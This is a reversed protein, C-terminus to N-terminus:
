SPGLDGIVQALNTPVGAVIKVKGDKGRYVSYPTGGFGYKIMLQRNAELKAAADPAITKPLTSYDVKEVAKWAAAMDPASLVQQAIQVSDPGLIGVPILRLQVAAMTQPSANLDQWYGQCYHCRPDVFIYLVPATKAGITIYTSAGADAWLREGASGPTEGPQTGPPVSVAEAAPKGATTNPLVLGKQKAAELQGATVLNGEPGYLLGVVSAQGDLTTYVVEVATDKTILWGDLGYLRGIYNVDAGAQKFQKLTSISDPDPATRQSADPAPAAAPPVPPSPPVPATAPAAEAFVAASGLMGILALGALIKRAM